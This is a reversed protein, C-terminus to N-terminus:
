GKQIVLAPSIAIIIFLNKYTNFISCDFEIFDNVCIIYQACTVKTNTSKELAGSLSDQIYTKERESIHPHKEPTDAAILM